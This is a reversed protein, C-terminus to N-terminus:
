KGSSGFGNDGRDTEPFRDVRTMDTQPIPLIVLQIIKQGEVFTHPTMFPMEPADRYLKVVIEGTYGADIVGEGHIGYNVNLGSKSKLMGVYGEPILVHLGTHVTISDGPYLEYVRDKPCRIDWGADMDHARVPPYGYSDLMYPIDM